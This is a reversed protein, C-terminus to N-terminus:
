ATVPRHTTWGRLFAAAMRAGARPGTPWESALWKVQADRAEPTAYEPALGGRVYWSTEARTLALEMRYRSDALANRLAQNVPHATM